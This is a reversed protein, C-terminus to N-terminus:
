NPHNNEIHAFMCNMNWVVLGIEWLIKNFVVRKKRNEIHSEWTNLIYDDWGSTGTVVLRTAMM